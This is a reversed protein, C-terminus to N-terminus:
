VFIPWVCIVMAADFGARAAVGRSVGFGDYLAILISQRTIPYVMMSMSMSRAIALALTSIGVVTMNAMRVTNMNVVKVTYMDAMGMGM